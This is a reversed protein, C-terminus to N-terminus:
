QIFRQYGRSECTDISSNCYIEIFNNEQMLQQALLRDAKFPSIFATLVIIGADIFLKELNAISRINERRDENSFDLDGCLGHRVNDGDMVYTSCGIHYLKDKLAHALTSKGAGSLGTFWLVISKHQHLQERKVHTITVHHRITNPCVCNEDPM